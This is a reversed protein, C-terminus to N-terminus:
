GFEPFDDARLFAPHDGSADAFGAHTQFRTVPMERLAM